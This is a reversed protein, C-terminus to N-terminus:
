DLAHGYGPVHRWWFDPPAHLAPERYDIRRMTPLVLRKLMLDSLRFRQDLADMDITVYQDNIQRLRLGLITYGISDRADLLSYLPHDEEEENSLDPQLLLELYDQGIHNFYHMEDNLLAEVRDALDDKCHDYIVDHVSENHLFYALSDDFYDRQVSQAFPRNQLNQVFYLVRGFHYYMEKLNPLSLGGVSRNWVEELEFHLLENSISLENLQWHVGNDKHHETSLM